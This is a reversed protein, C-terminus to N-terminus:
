VFYLFDGVAREGDDDSPNNILSKNRVLSVSGGQDLSYANTCGKNKLYQATDSLKNNYTTDTVIYYEGPASQGIVTRKYKNGERYSPSIDGNEIVQTSHCSFSYKVGDNVLEQASKGSVNYINGKNDLLLEQGGSVGDKKIQGDVIVIHNNGRLDEAGNDYDFHSGNILVASNLRSAASSSKELGNAYSGNAPAGNIQSGDNIVVHTVQVPQGNIMETTTTTFLNSNVTAYDANDIESGYKNYANSVNSGAIMGSTDIDKANTSSYDKTGLIKEMAKTDGAKYATAVDNLHTAITGFNTVVSDLKVNVTDFGTVCSECIPGMFVSENSLQTKSNSMTEQIAKIAESYKSTTGIATDFIGYDSIDYKEGSM